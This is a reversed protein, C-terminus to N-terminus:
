VIELIGRVIGYNNAESKGAVRPELALLEKVFAPIWGEADVSPDLVGHINKRWFVDQLPCGIGMVRASGFATERATEAWARLAPRYIERLNSNKTAREILAVFEDRPIQVHPIGNPKTVM